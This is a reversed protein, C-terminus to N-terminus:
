RWYAAVRDEDSNWRLSSNGVEGTNMITTLARNGVVDVEWDKKLLPLANALDGATKNETEGKKKGSGGYITFVVDMEVGDVLCRLVNTGKNPRNVDDADYLCVGKVVSEVKPMRGILSEVDLKFAMGNRTVLIKIYNDGYTNNLRNALDIIQNLKMKTKVPGRTFKDVDRM